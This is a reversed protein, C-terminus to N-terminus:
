SWGASCPHSFVWTSSSTPGAPIWRTGDLSIGGGPVIMHGHPPPQARLRLYPLHLRVADQASVQPDDHGRDDHRTATATALSTPHALRGSRDLIGIVRIPSCPHTNINHFAKTGYSETRFKLHSRTSGTTVNSRFDRAPRTGRANVEVHAAHYAGPPSALSPRQDTHAASRWGAASPSASGADVISRPFRASHRAWPFPKYESTTFTRILGM